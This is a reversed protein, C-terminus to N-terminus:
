GVGVIDGPEEGFARRYDELVNRRLTIWQGLAARRKEVVIMRVRDTHPSPDGHGGAANMMWVYLLSAYPLGNVTLAEALAAERPRRLRAEGSRRRLRAVPAGVPQRALSVRAAPQRRAARALAVRYRTARPDVHIKRCMGSGGEGIRRSRWWATAEGVRYDTPQQRAGFQELSGPRRTAPRLRSFRAV